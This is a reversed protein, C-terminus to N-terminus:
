SAGNAQEFRRSLEEAWSRIADWDRADSAEAPGAFKNLPFRLLAPDFRGGFMETSVPSFWGLKELEADLQAQCEAWEGQDDTCPGLAFVAVPREQLEKRTRSLFKRADSHLRHMILPAGLVVPGYGGLHRVERAPLIDVHLGTGRMADAIAEAVERTSGYMTAFVVLTREVM